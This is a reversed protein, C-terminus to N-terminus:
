GAAPQRKPTRWAVLLVLGAGLLSLTPLLWTSKPNAPAAAPPGTARIPALGGLHAEIMAATAPEVPEWTERAPQSERAVVVRLHSLTNGRARHYFFRATPMGYWPLRTTAGPQQDFVVEYYDGAGTPAPGGYPAAVVEAMQQTLQFAPERDAESGSDFAHTGDSGVLRIRLPGYFDLGKASAVGGAAIALLVALAFGPGPRRALWAVPAM